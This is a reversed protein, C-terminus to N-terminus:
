RLTALKEGRLVEEHPTCPLIANKIKEHYRGSVSEPAM